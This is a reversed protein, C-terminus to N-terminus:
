AETEQPPTSPERTEWPGHDHLIEVRVSAPAIDQMTKAFGELQEASADILEPVFRLSEAWLANFGQHYTKVIDTMHVLDDYPGHMRIESIKPM